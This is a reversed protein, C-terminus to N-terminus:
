GWLWVIVAAALLSGGVFALFLTGRSAPTTPPANDNARGKWRWEQPDNQGLQRALREFDEPRQWPDPM